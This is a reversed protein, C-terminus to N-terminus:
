SNTKVRNLLQEGAPTMAELTVHRRDASSGSALRIEIDAPPTLSEGKGPWEILLLMRPALYDRLGLYELEEPDELRYFDFHAAALPGLEYSEVLGYTPSKVAGRHGLARLLARVFTTKGAGLDGVLHMCVPADSAEDRPETTAPDLARALAEAFGVLAPEGLDHGTLTTASM